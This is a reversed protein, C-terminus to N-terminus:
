ETEGIGLAKIIRRSLWRAADRVQTENYGYNNRWDTGYIDDLGIDKLAKLIEDKIAKLAEETKASKLTGKPDTQGDFYYKCAGYQPYARISALMLDAPAHIFIQTKNRTM